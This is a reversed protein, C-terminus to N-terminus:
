TLPAFAAGEVLTIGIASVALFPAYPTVQRRSVVGVVLLALMVLGGAAVGLALATFADPLGLAAGIFVALKVDALGIGGRTLAWVPLFFSAALVVAFIAARLDGGPLAASSTLALAFGPYTILNPVRYRLLDTATCVVLAMLFASVLVADSTSFRLASAALLSPVCFVIAVRLRSAWPEVQWPLLERGSSEESGPEFDTLRWILREILFAIPIGCLFFALPATM